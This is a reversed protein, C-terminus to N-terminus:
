RGSPYSAEVDKLATRGGANFFPDDEMTSIAAVVADLATGGKQLIEYGKDLAEKLAASYEAELEKNM